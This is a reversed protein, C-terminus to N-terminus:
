DLLLHHYEPTEAWVVHRRPKKSGHIQKIKENALGCNNFIVHALKEVGTEPDTEYIMDIYYFHLHSTADSHHQPRTWDM